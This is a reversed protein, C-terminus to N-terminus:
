DCIKVKSCKGKCFFYGNGEGAEVEKESYKLNNQFFATQGPTSKLSLGIQNSVIVRTLSEIENYKSIDATRGAAIVIVGLEQALRCIREMSNLNADSIDDVFAKLDDIVICIMEYSAIFEEPNFNDDNDRAENQSRKRVNLYEVIENIMSSCMDDDTSVSYKYATSAVNALSKSQSDFVFIKSNEFKKHVLNVIEILKNSKGSHVAGTILMSYDVSLDAYQIEINEWNIGVPIVSRKNYAKLLTDFTLYEPMIPIPKAKPGDWANNMESIIRKVNEVREREDNGSTFLAVQFEIPKDGTLSSKKFLARGLVGTTFSDPRGVTSSYDGKDLLEFAIAGKVNQSIKYKVGGVTASTYVLYIGYTAGDRAIYSLTPELDPYMEFIPVINDIAIVIAPIDKGITERYAKINGVANSLFRRKRNEIEEMILKSFKSIKEEECDLVVSGVHPLDSFISTSWGGSDIIYLNLDSPKHTLVLSMVITKLLTTKGTGSAGYIGLHGWELFDYYQIGQMQMEPWDYMGIPLKLWQNSKWSNGDFINNGIIDEVAINEPLEPKIPGQVSEIGMKEAEACIYDVIAHLQTTDAKKKEIKPTTKIRKGVNNVIRVKDTNDEVLEKTSSYPAGSWYSQFLEYKENNGVKLYARGARTIYAADAEKLVERSDAENQVKLCIRFRSNSDIQESVIGGPKQTALVLRIGLQRGVVAVSVLGSLFDPQEKKLEAFEDAIILLYPLPESVLGEKYKQQYEEHKKIGYEAFIEERRKCERKISALSRNIGSGINTITGIVHPLPSLANAMGGGKYDILVFSVEDPRFNVALSLIWTQLMESKGSGTTGAVLGHPGDAGQVESFDGADLSLTKGGAAVGIPVAMSKYAPNRSWRETVNLEEVKEIGYGELFTIGDPIGATSNLGELKIASMFRSFKDLDSVRTENDPTFYFRNNAQAKEYVSPGNDVDVIYKCDSPIKFLENFLFLSTIGRVSENSLLEKAMPTEDFLKKSGVIFIYFPLKSEAKNNISNKMAYSNRERFTGQLSEYLDMLDESNFALYREKKNNSWIHPFWKIFDWQQKEEEDFIGVIKVDEFSHLTTLSILMNHVLAITSSRSGIFGYTNNNKLSVRAPINDVVKNSEIISNTLEIMEDTEMKVADGTARTKIGVCLDDYGMGVRINLFDADDPKREWMKRQLQYVIRQCAKPEPNEEKIIERQTEATANILAEQSDIYEGYKERRVSEYELTQKMREKYSSSSNFIGLVPSVLGASRAVLLAPSLATTMMSAGTMASMGILSSFGGRSKSVKQPKSPAPALIIDNQPLANQIRPSRHYSLMAAGAEGGDYNISQILDNIQVRNDAREFILERNYLKISIDLISIIDGSLLKAKTIRKNNVFTPNSNSKNEIWIDGSICRLVFHNRSVYSYALVVNSDESRGFHILGDFPVKIKDDIGETISSIYLIVGSKEDLILMTNLPVSSTTFDYAKITKLAIAKTKNIVKIQENGFGEVKVKDKKGTGFTLEEGDALLAEYRYEGVVLIVNVKM